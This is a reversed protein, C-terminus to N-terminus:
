RAALALVGNPGFAVDSVPRPHSFVLRETRQALDTACVRGDSGVSVLSEGAPSFTLAIVWDAHPKFTTEPPPADVSMPSCGAVFGVLALGCLKNTYRM